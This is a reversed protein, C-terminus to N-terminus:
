TGLSPWVHIGRVRGTTGERKGSCDLSPWVHCERNSPRRDYRPAYRDVPCARPMGQQEPTPQLPSRLSGRPLGTANETTQPVIPIVGSIVRNLNDERGWRSGGHFNEFVLLKCGFESM